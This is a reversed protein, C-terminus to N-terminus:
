AAHRRGRRAQPWGRILEEFPRDILGLSRSINNATGSPLPGVPVGRGAMRKAVRGITGDGGAVAILDAPQNLADHWRVDDCSQYRTQHGAARLMAVLRQPDNVGKRGAGPNHILTVRL